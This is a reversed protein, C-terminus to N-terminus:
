FIADSAPACSFAQPMDDSNVPYAPFSLVATRFAEAATYPAILFIFTSYSPWSSREPGNEAPRVSLIAFFLFAEEASIASKAALQRSPTFSFGTSRNPLFLNATPTHSYSLQKEDVIVSSM